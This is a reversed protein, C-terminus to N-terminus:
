ARLRWLRYELSADRAYAGLDLLAGSVDGDQRIALVDALTYTEHIRIESFPRGEVWETLNDGLAPPLALLRAALAERAAPALHPREQELRLLLATMFKADM